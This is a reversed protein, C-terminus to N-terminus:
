ADAGRVFLTSTVTAVRRGQRDRIESSTTVIAHTGRETVATVTLDTTLEDGAVIHRHYRASQSGHVVRTPDLGTDPSRLLQGVAPDVVVAAFTPPAVVDPHGAARAADVDHHISHTASVTHAFERVKERGVLYPGVPPFVRGSLSPTLPM